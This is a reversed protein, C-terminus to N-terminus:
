ALDLKRRRAPDYPTDPALNQDNAFAPPDVPPGDDPDRRTRGPLQSLEHIPNSLLLCAIEPSTVLDHLRRDM